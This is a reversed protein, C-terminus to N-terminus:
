NPFFDGAASKESVWGENGAAFPAANAAQEARADTRLLFIRRRASITFADGDPTPDGARGPGTQVAKRRCNVGAPNYNRCPSCRM